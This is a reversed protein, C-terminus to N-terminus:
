RGPLLGLMALALLTKGDLILGERALSLVKDLALREVSSIEAEDIGPNVRQLGHASFLHILENSYGIAPAYACIRRLSEARYGTEELLERAACEEPKEGPDLKGAPIELTERGLAYRYQRVMLLEGKSVFPVIAAAEPHSIRLRRTVKGDRLVVDDLHVSFSAAKLTAITQIKKEM